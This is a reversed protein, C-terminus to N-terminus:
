GDRLLLDEFVGNGMRYGRRGKAIAYPANSMNEMGGAVIINADGLQIQQAALSICRLGSGCLKNVTLAPVEQPIGAHLMAQRATNQGQGAQIVNGFLVEDIQDLPVNQARDLAGKIATVGLNVVPVDAFAGNFSGIATRAASVIVADKM